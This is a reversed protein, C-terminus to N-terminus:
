VSPRSGHRVFWDSAFESATRQPFRTIRELLADHIAALRRPDRERLFLKARFGGQPRLQFDRWSLAGPSASRSTSPNLDEVHMMAVLARDRGLQAERALVALMALSLRHRLTAFAPASLPVLLCSTPLELLGDALLHPVRPTLVWGAHFPTSSLWPLRQPTASSDVVYGLRQLEDIAARGLRCWRPSRFARPPSAFCRTHLEHSERLFALEASSGFMLAEIERWDHLHGHSGLEHGSAQLERIAEVHAASALMETPVFFTARLGGETLRRAAHRIDEPVDVTHLDFTLVSCPPMRDQQM